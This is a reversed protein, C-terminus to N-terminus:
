NTFFYGSDKNFIHSISFKKLKEIEDNLDQDNNFHKTYSADDCGYIYIEYIDLNSYMKSIKIGTYYEDVKPQHFPQIEDCTTEVFFHDLTSPKSYTYKHVGMLGEENEGVCFGTLKYNMWCCGTVKPYERYKKINYFEKWNGWSKPYFADFWQEESYVKM